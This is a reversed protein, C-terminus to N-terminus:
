RGLALYSAEKLTKSYLHKWEKLLKEIKREM